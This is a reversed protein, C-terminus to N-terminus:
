PPLLSSARDSPLPPSVPNTQRQGRRFWSPDFTFAHIMLMGVSLDAFDVVLLIGLHMLAMSSWAIIRTFRHFSLPVFLLEAALCGWTLLHLVGEPLQLMLDRALGPRALPNQLVHWMATGDLWSPSSCKAWGSFTYGTAMLIWAVWYASSPFKWAPDRRGLSWPEGAPVLATLQLLLGIYPISPNSILNNRNFLCAWGFWLLVACTRRWLGAGYAVSLLALAMVFGTAFAPTGWHELPNSLIGHTFNLKADPLMGQASFLEAACPVVQLFHVTLYTGLLIRFAAFQRGPLTITTNM